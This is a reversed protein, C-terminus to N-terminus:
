LRAPHESVRPRLIEDTIERRLPKVQAVEIGARWVQPEKRVKVVVEALGKPLFRFEKQFTDQEFVLVDQSQQFGIVREQVFPQGPMIANRMDVATTKPLDSKIFLIFAAAQKTM